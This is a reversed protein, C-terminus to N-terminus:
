LHKREAMLNRIMVISKDIEKRDSEQSILLKVQQYYRIAELATQKIKADTVVYKMEYYSALDLANRWNKADAKMNKDILPKIETYRKAGSVIHRRIFLREIWKDSKDFDYLRDIKAIRPGRAMGLLIVRVRDYEYDEFDKQSNLFRIMALLDPDERSKLVYSM